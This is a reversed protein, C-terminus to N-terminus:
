FNNQASNVVKLKATKIQIVTAHCVGDCGYRSNFVRGLAQGTLKLKCIIRHLAANVCAIMYYMIDIAVAFAILSAM